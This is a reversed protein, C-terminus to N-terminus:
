ELPSLQLDSFTLTVQELKLAQLQDQWESRLKRQATEPQAVNRDVAQKLEDVSMQAPDIQKLQAQTMSRQMELETVDVSVMALEDSMRDLLQGSGSKALEAQRQLIRIQGEMVANEAESLASDPVFGGKALERTREIAKERLVLQTKLQETVLDNKAQERARDQQEHIGAALAKTRAQKVALAVDLRSLEERLRAIRESVEGPKPTAVATFRDLSEIKENLQNIESRIAALRSNRQPEPMEADKSVLAKLQKNLDAIFADQQEKTGDAPGTVLVDVAMTRSSQGDRQMRRLMFPNDKSQTYWSRVNFLGEISSITLREAPKGDVVLHFDFQKEGSQAQTRTAIICLACLTFLTRRIM